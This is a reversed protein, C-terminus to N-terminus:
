LQFQQYGKCHQLLNYPQPGDQNVYNANAYNVVKEEEEEEFSTNAEM